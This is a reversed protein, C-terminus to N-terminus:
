SKKGVEEKGLYIFADPNLLKLKEIIQDPFETLSDPLQAIAWINRPLMSTGFLSKLEPEDEAEAM